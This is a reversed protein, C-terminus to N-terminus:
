GNRVLEDDGMEDDIFEKWSRFQMVIICPRSKTFEGDIGIVTWPTSKELM